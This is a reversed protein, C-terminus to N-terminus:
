MFVYPQFMSIGEHTNKQPQLIKRLQEMHWNTKSIAEQELYHEEKEM